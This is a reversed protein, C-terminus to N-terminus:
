LLLALLLLALLLLALGTVQDVDIKKAKKAVFYTTDYSKDFYQGSWAQETIVSTGGRGMVKAAESADVTLVCQIMRM